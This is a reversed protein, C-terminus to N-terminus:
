DTLSVCYCVSQYEAKATYTQTSGTVQITTTPTPQVEKVQVTEQSIPGVSGDDLVQMQQCYPSPAGPNERKEEMKIRRPYDSVADRKSNTNTNSSSSSGSGSSSSGGTAQVYSSSTATASYQADKTTENIYLFFEIITSNWWCFWPKDGAKAVDKRVLMTALLEDESLSRKSSAHTPFSDQPVVVLKDFTTWFHLAPGFSADNLDYAMSLNQTPNSLVPAQAGYSLSSSYTTDEFTISRQTDTGGVAVPIDGSNMCSWTVRYDSEAVCFKSQNKPSAPIVYQGTPLALLNIPTSTVPTADMKPTVTSTVIHPGNPQKHEQDAAKKAGLVGGIVGGICGGVLMVVGVLVITWIPLGCCAKKKGKRKLKEEFAMIGTLPPEESQSNSRATMRNPEELPVNTSTVESMPPGARENHLTEDSTIGADNVSAFTGEVKPVANEPYRSYPPLQETHGDPGILDGVDDDARGPPRQYAQNHGPFGLPVMSNDMLPPEIMSNDLASDMGEEPVVNQTYMAYPHQPGSTDELPQDVPRLTSATAVSPSRSVGVQPYMAYPHSPGTAGTYPSMARVPISFRSSISQSRATTSPTTSAVSNRNAFDVGKLPLSSRHPTEDFSVRAEDGFPDETLDADIPITNYTKQQSQQQQPVSGRLTNSSDTSSTSPRRSTFITHESDLPELSYEDSFVNPNSSRASVSRRHMSEVENVPTFRPTSRQSSQSFSRSHDSSLRGSM